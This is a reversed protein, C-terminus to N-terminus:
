FIILNQNVNFVFIGLRYYERTVQIRDDFVGQVNYRPVIENRVIEEKIISDTRQDKTKRMYMESDTYWLENDELWKKTSEYSSNQRGSVYIIKHGKNHLGDLVQKVPEIVTDLHLKSDDFIDRDGKLAVTGDIDVLFASPLNKDFIVEPSDKMYFLRDGHFERKVKLYSDFQRDIYDVQTKDTWGNRDMVREKAVNKDVDVFVLQISDMHNFKRIFDRIYSAKVNTNDIVVSRNQTLADYIIQEQVLTVFKECKHIDKRNYYGEDNQNVNFLTKRLDDRNVRISDGVMLQNSITTKGAGSIGVIITIM